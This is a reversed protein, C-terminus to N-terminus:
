LQCYVTLFGARDENLDFFFQHSASHSCCVIGGIDVFFGPLQAQALCRPIFELSQEGVLAKCHGCAPALHQTIDDLFGQRSIGVVQRRDRDCLRYEAAALTEIM